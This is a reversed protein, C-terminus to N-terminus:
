RHRFTNIIAGVKDKQQQDKSIVSLNVDGPGSPAEEDREKLKTRVSVLANSYDPTGIQKDMLHFRASGTAKLAEAMEKHQTYLAELIDQWLVLPQKASRSDQSVIQKITRWSRTGLLNKIMEEDGLEKFREVEFAQYPSAYKTENYVFETETVPHFQGTHPDDVDTIFLVTTEGGGEQGQAGEGHARYHGEADMRSMSLRKYLYADYGFKREEHTQSLLLSRIEPNSLISTWQEPYLAKNRLVSLRRVEENLNVVAFALSADQPSSQYMDYATRLEKLKIVYKSEVDDQHEQRQTELEELEEPRLSSFARLTVTGAPLGVPNNEKIMLNGEATYVFFQPYKARYRYVQQMKEVDSLSAWNTTQKPRRAKKATATAAATAAEVPAAPAVPAPPPPPPAALLAAEREAGTLEGTNNFVLEEEVEPPRISALAASAIATRPAAPPLPQLAPVVPAAKAATVPAAKAATVPVRRMAGTEEDVVLEYAPAKSKKAPLGSPPAQEAM